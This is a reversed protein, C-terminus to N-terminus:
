SNQKEQALKCNNGHWREYNSKGKGIQNCHECTFIFMTEKKMKGFKEREEPTWRQKNTNSIKEKTATSHTKGQMSGTRGILRKSQNSREESSSWRITAMASQKFKTDITPIYNLKERTQKTKQKASHSRKTGFAPNGAGQRKLRAEESWNFKAGCIGDGGDTRNLLIGTGLDKRGYWRIMRREIALAGIETLNQELIVIKTQDKPVSIGHHKHWARQDKGKGIYYPFGTTKRLYAYVYFGSPTIM